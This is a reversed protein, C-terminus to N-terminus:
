FEYAVGAWFQRGLQYTEFAYAEWKHTVRAAEGIKNRKDLINLVEFTLVLKQGSFTPQEWALSADLMYADKFRVTKYVNLKKEDPLMTASNTGEYGVSVDALDVLRKHSTTYTFVGSVTLHSFYKGVYTLNFIYPRNFNDKPLDKKKIIEGDLITEAGTDELNYNADYNNYSTYSESWTGNFMLSHNEWSKRWGLRVSRYRSSGANDLRYHAKGDKEIERYSTAFEDDSRREVYQASLVSDYINQSINASYEDTYPTRLEKFNYEIISNLDTPMWEQIRNNYTQRFYRDDSIGAERLKNRLLNAGYYRSYGLTLVTRNDNFIDYQFQTRPSFNTNNMYDDNSVRLGLRLKFRLFDWEDEGYGAYENIWVSVDSVPYTNRSAFYQDGDICTQMDGGCRVDPSATADQYQSYEEPRYQRGYINNYAAGYSVRHTGWLGMPKLNHDFKLSLNGNEKKLNGPGGEYSSVDKDYGEAVAGWPKYPSVIWNYHYDTSGTRSDEQFSYDAHVKIEGDDKIGNYYNMVAFYGGGNINYEGDMTDSMFYKEVYPAYAVSADIYSTGDINYLGKLFYTESLRETDKYGNFHRLPIVSDTRNYSVLFGMDDNIPINLAAAYFDKRFNPQNLHGESEKFYNKDKEDIYYHTWGTKTTRYSLKGGFKKGPEKTTVDVVGGTFGGFSAPINSDYVTIDEVLWSNLFFKQPNGGIDIIRVKDNSGPNLMNSNSMGDILFLSEYPKAGSISVEAPAIEGATNSSRYNKDYQIGPAVRLLDSITGDGKPMNELVERPIETRGVVADEHVRERVEVDIILAADDDREPVTDEAFAATFFLLVLPLLFKKMHYELIGPIEGRCM